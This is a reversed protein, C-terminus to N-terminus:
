NAANILQQQIAIYVWFIIKNETDVYVTNAYNFKSIGQEYTFKRSYPNYLEKDWNYVQVITYDESM